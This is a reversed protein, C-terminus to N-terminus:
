GNVDYRTEITDELLELAIGGILDVFEKGMEDPFIVDKLEPPVTIIDYNFTCILQDNPADEKLKFGLYKYTVGAWPKKKLRVLWQDEDNPDAVLEYYKALARKPKKPTPSM